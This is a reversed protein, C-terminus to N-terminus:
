EESSVPVTAPAARRGFALVAEILVFAALVALLVAVPLNYDFFPKADWLVRTKEWIMVGLSAMTVIMMFVMPVAAIWWRKGTRRMWITVGLLTLAALLQNATGFLTWFYSWAPEMEGKGNRLSATVFFAVPVLTIITCALAGLRSKWGTIEQLVYRGLRTSVDLTDYVFTAFALLGFTFAFGIFDPNDHFVGLFRATGNAYIANPSPKAGFQNLDRPSVMILTALAIVAVMAELLMAGYAVRKADPETKLQRATTGSSVLAHFGSCAGCAVTVFLVPFLTRGDPATFSTFADYRVQITRGGGAGFLELAASAIIGAVAAGLSIYLFFGGLYGRPQLLLWMPVMAAVVCYGLIILNWAKQADGASLGLWGALDMPVYKGAWVCAFILPVFICAAKKESIKTWRMTLGMIIPLLIYLFSSGAVDAGRVKRAQEMVKAGASGEGQSQVIDKVFASSTVDTFAVIIYVLAIWIFGLFLLYARRSMHEHVIQAISRAKHRISAVLATFDHVGGIFISGVLVWILVPVWGFLLGAAIPGVIPGAAAIATFHQNLLYNPNAPIFDAGDHQEFAPTPASPDLRLSRALFRGYVRYGIFLILASAIVILLVQMDQESSRGM